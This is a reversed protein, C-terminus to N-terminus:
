LFRKVFDSDGNIFKLRHAESPLVFCQFFSADIWIIMAKISHPPLEILAAGTRPATERFKLVKNSWAAPCSTTVAM